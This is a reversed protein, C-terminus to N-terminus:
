GIRKGSTTALCLAGEVGHHRHLIDVNGPDLRSSSASTFVV